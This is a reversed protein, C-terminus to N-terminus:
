SSFHTVYRIFICVIKKWDGFPAQPTTLFNTIEKYAGKPAVLRLAQIHAVINQEARSLPLTAAALM